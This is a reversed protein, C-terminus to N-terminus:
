ERAESEYRTSKENWKNADRNLIPVRPSVQSRTSRTHACVSTPSKKKKKEKRADKRMNERERKRRSEYIANISVRPSRKRDAHTSRCEYVFTATETSRSMQSPEVAHRM